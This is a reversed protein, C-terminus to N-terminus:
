HSIIGAPFQFARQKYDIEDPFFKKQLENFRFLIAPRASPRETTKARIPGSIRAIGAM